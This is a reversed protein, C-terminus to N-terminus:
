RLACQIKRTIGLIRSSFEEQHPAKGSESYLSHGDNAPLSFLFFGVWQATREAVNNWLLIDSRCSSRGIAQRQKEILIEGRQPQGAPCAILSRPGFLGWEDSM